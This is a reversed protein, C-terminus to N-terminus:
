IIKQRKMHAQGPPIIGSPNQSSIATTTPKQINLDSNLQIKSGDDIKGKALRDRARKSNSDNVSISLHVEEAGPVVRPEREKSAFM